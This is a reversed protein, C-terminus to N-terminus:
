DVLSSRDVSPVIVASPSPSSAGPPPRSPSSSGRPCPIVRYRLPGPDLKRGCSDPGNAIVDHVGPEALATGGLSPANALGPQVACGCALASPFIVLALSALFRDM